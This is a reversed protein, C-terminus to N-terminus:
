WYHINRDPIHIRLIECSFLGGRGTVLLSKKVLNPTFGALFKFSSPPVIHLTMCKEHKPKTHNSFLWVTCFICYECKVLFLFSTLFYHIYVSTMFWFLSPSLSTLPSLPLSLCSLLLNKSTVRKRSVRQHRSSCVYSVHLRNEDQARGKLLQRPTSLLWLRRYPHEFFHFCSFNWDRWPLINVWIYNGNYLYSMVTQWGVTEQSALPTHFKRYNRM